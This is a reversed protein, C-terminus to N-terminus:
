RDFPHESIPAAARQNTKAGIGLSKPTEYSAELRGTAAIGIVDQLIEALQHFIGSGGM